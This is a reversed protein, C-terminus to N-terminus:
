KERCLNHPEKPWERLKLRGSAQSTIKFKEQIQQNPKTQTTSTSIKKTQCKTHAASCHTQRIEMWKRQDPFHTAGSLVTRNASSRNKQTRKGKGTPNPSRYNL